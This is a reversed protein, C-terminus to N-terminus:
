NQPQTLNILMWRGPILSLLSLQENIYANDPIRGATRGADPFTSEVVSLLMKETKTLVALGLEKNQGFKREIFVYM